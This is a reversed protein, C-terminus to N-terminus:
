DSRKEPIVFHPPNSRLIETDEEREMEREGSRRTLVDTKERRVNSIGRSRDGLM